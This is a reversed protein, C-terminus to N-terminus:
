DMNTFPPGPHKTADCCCNFTCMSSFIFAIGGFIWNVCWFVFCSFVMYSQPREVGQQVIVTHSPAGAVVATGPQGPYPQQPYSQNPYLQNPYPQNPYPKNPYAKNPYGGEGYAPPQQNDMEIESILWPLKLEYAAQIYPQLKLLIIM